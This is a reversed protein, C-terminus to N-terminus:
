NPNPDCQFAPAGGTGNDASDLDRGTGPPKAFVASMGRFIRHIGKPQIMDDWPQGGVM